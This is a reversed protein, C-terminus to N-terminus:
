LILILTIVRKQGSRKILKIFKLHCIILHTKLQLIKLYISRMTLSFDIIELGEDLLNIRYKKFKKISDVSLNSNFEFPYELSHAEVIDGISIISTTLDLNRVVERLIPFSLIVQVENELNIKSSSFLDSASPMELSTESKDLVQIKAVTNYVEPTYRVFLFATILCLSISISFIKWFSLYKFFEETFNIESTDNLDDKSDNLSSM